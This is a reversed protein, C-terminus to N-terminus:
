DGNWDPAKRPHPAIIPYFTFWKVHGIAWGNQKITIPMGVLWILTFVAVFAAVIVMLFVILTPVIFSMLVLLIVGGATEAIYTKKM